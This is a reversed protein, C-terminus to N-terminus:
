HPWVNQSFAGVKALFNVCFAAESSLYYILVKGRLFKQGLNPFKLVILLGLRSSPSNQAINKVFFRPWFTSIGIFRAVSSSISNTIQGAAEALVPDCIDIILTVPTLVRLRSAKKFM